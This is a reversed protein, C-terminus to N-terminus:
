GGREEVIRDSLGIAMAKHYPLRWLKTKPDWKGGAQKIQGRLSVEEYDVRVSVVTKPYYRRPQLLDNSGGLLEKEDVILEVTTYRRTNAEDYRYRVCVLREGFRELFRKTGPSGPALKKKIPLSQSSSAYPPRRLDASKHAAVSLSSARANTPVSRHARKPSIATPPLGNENNM